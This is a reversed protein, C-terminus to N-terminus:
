KHKRKFKIKRKEKEEYRNDSIYNVIIKLLYLSSLSVFGNILLKNNKLDNKKEKNIKKDKNIYEKALINSNNDTYLIYEDKVYPYKDINDYPNDVINKYTIYDGNEEEISYVIYEINCKKRNGTMNDHNNDFTYYTKDNFQENSKYEYLYAYTKNSIKLNDLEEIKYFNNDEIYKEITYETENNNTKNSCGSTLGLMAIITLYYIKNKKM